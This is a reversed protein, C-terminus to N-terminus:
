WFAVHIAELEPTVLAKGKRHFRMLETKVTWTDAAMGTM